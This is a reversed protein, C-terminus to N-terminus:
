ESAGLVALNETVVTHRFFNKMRRGDAKSGYFTQLKQEGKPILSRVAPFKNLVTYEGTYGSDADYVFSSARFGAFSVGHEVAIRKIAMLALFDPASTMAYLVDRKQLDRLSVVQDEDAAAVAECVAGIAIHAFEALPRGAIAQGTCMLSRATGMEAEVTILGEKALCGLFCSASIPILNDLTVVSVTESM